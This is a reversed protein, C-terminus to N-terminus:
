MFIRFEQSSYCPGNDSRFIQPKGFESFIMGLEKIIASSTSSPIKRIILYKSFYDVVVLFDIRQFYFLDSGLTHWPHPHVESIYKQVIPTSNQQSQCIDCKEVMEKLDNNINVWFVFERARSRCAEIGQHGQHIQILYKQKLTEPILVKSNKMLIGSEVMLEDRYNWYPHLFVPIQSRKAPWGTSIYHKLSQLEKDKNTEQLVEDREREEISSYQLFNVALIDNEANSDQFELPTVRSLSDAIVNIKGPIHQPIFDYQWARITIRQIRPSVDIMHKRFISVLPKQDTQLIFKRGYLFYHFKEMGWVAAQAECELNQYNKEASTLARSAYYIPQEEQLIVAGFGKKSVDTQLFTEKNRDFYPLIIKKKFEAKIADFATHEPDGPSYHSDKLILKRLPSCLEALKPTYRNLFNVLGLFSHMTEKDPPFQMKLISETKKPDPSIGTSNWRHGFFSVEEKKFQLKRKNLILGNKRTTELFLILNRDHEEENRGFIVMDDAIGTVGPLGIYVSDLMRQFIDSAVKSGMPLRKFQYRGIDFAMCTLKRSEPHLVVQWYGKDMDVITFVKAGAFMSILEDISRRYYPERELAENLDKPDICLRISKKIVHNPSHANSSDIVKEVIVFSNVWETPETVKELVDIKVLREVEEHFADQLHVPVKRPRHKAPVADPKLRLKYPEGPFKGLGQFVDAYTTEVKEQTLPLDTISLSHYNSGVVHKPSSNSSDATNSISACNMQSRDETSTLPAPVPAAEMPPVSHGSVPPSSIQNNPATEVSLCKKLIGMLFTTERSLLNPTEIGMVEFKVRYKHGKWRLFCRFSGIPKILRKDFNQLVQTSEELEVDPFLEDFTRKNIANMDAGTDAQLILKRDFSLPTLGCGFEIMIPKDDSTGSLVYMSKPQYEKLLGKEDFFDAQLAPEEVASAINMRGTSGPKQFKSSSKKPFNGSKKCAAEFHGEIGCANCKANLAKCVKEHGKTYNKKCRYCLKQSGTSDQKQGSSSSSSINPNSQFKQKKGTGKKKEYSAYHIKQTTSTMETLTQRTSDELQLIEIVDQLKIKEGQQVIKDKAKDSNCGIILVDRIIRESSDGYDCSEVLNYVYTLWENLTKSGQKSRTWLEIVSLLKNGKPRFEADLLNWYNQLIYGSSLADEESSSFDLKGLATWKKVLPIGQEGMWYRLYSVKQKSSSEELASSFILEVKEKWIQYRDFSKNDRTWDLKPGTELLGTAM